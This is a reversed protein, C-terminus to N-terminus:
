PHFFQERRTQHKSHGEAETFIKLAKRRQWSDLYKQPGTGGFFFDIPTGTGNVVVKYAPM